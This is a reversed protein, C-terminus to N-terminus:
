ESKLATMRTEKPIVQQGRALQSRNGIVVWEGENVGGRVETRGSAEFGLTVPRVDLKNDGGVVYVTRQAESGAVASSPISVAADRHELVLNVEAYMGPMLALSPNQVDVETELTRTDAAVRGSTRAVRGEFSRNLSPVRVEVVTGTRIQSAASEPVPLILRLLRAESLRALPMAQTQSATGAQIMSGTNAYRKTIVGAFPATVRTYNQLTRIKDLEAQAVKVQEDAASISSRAAAIQSEAVLDRSHADDVEQQAVLGPRDKSVSALRSYQLHSMEHGSQARQLEEQAKRVEAMSRDLTAQGRALDNVMEPVELVALLQGQKVRDGIDFDIQKVYGAVKAMVDIEQFPKFEATLVLDRSMSERVAKAVAVTPVDSASNAEVPKGGRNCATMLALAFACALLPSHPQLM